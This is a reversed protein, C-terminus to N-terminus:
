RLDRDWRGDHLNCVPFRGRLNQESSEVPIGCVVCVRGGRNRDALPIAQLSSTKVKRAAREENIAQARPRNMIRPGLSGENWVRFEDLMYTTTKCNANTCCFWRSYYYPQRLQKAGIERHMRIQTPRRCRPCPPGNTGIIIYPM